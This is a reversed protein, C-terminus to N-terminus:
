LLLDILDENPDFGARDGKHTASAVPPNRTGLLSDEVQPYGFGADDERVQGESRQLDHRTHAGAAPPSDDDDDDFSILVGSGGRRAPRAGPAEEEDEGENDDESQMVTESTEDDDSEGKV